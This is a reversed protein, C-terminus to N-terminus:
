GAHIPRDPQDLRWYRRPGRGTGARERRDARCPQRDDFHAPRHLGACGGNWRRRRRRRWHKRVIQILSKIMKAAEASRGALARVESAVIAFGRGADGARAAEIGANLALLSTQFAIEDIVSTIQSIEASSREIKAMIEVANGVIHSARSADSRAVEIVGIAEKVADATNRVADAIENISAATREISSAQSETRRALDKSALAIEQTGSYVTKSADRVCLFAGSLQAGAANFDAQLKRYADPLSADIRGTLDKEALRALGAGFSRGVLDRERMVAGETESHALALQEEMTKMRTLDILTEVVGIAGGHGDLLPAADIELYRRAGCPLDCWNEAKRAGSADKGGQAAYLGAGFSGEGQLVIDALCPRPAAYFGKWHDRTGIVDSAALGTLKACADNWVAVRGARDLIFAAVAMQAFSHSVYAALTTFGDDPAVPAAEATQSTERSANKRWLM